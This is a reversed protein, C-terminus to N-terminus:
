KPNNRLLSQRGWIGAQRSSHEDTAPATAPQDPLAAESGIHQTASPTHEPGDYEVGWRVGGKDKDVRVVRYGGVKKDRASRLRYGLIKASPPHAEPSRQFPTDTLECLAELFSERGPDHGWRMVSEVIRSATGRLNRDFEYWAKLVALLKAQDDDDEHVEEQTAVPDPLGAHLLAHRVVRDWELFSGLPSVGPRIPFGAVAHARLITLAAAFLRPRNDLVYRELDKHRFGSRTEPRELDTILRVRVVRRSLDGRLVLNNGTVALVTTNPLKMIQQSHFRRVGFAEATLFRDLVPNRLSGTANDFYAFRDGSILVSALRNELEKEDSTFSIETPVHGNIILGPLRALKTKGTGQRIGDIWLMPVPGRIAQRGVAACLGSLYASRHEETGFPFDHVVDLLLEIADQVQRPTPKAPIPEWRTRDDIFLYGTDTDYGPTAVIEGDPRMFPTTTIGALNPISPWHGCNAFLRALNAPASVQKSVVNRKKGSGVAKKDMFVIHRSMLRQAQEQSVESLVVSGPSRSVPNPGEATESKGACVLRGNQKYVHGSLHREIVQLIRDTEAGLVIVPREAPVGAGAEHRIGWTFYETRGEYAKPITLEPLYDPRDWKDRTLGSRRMIREIREHEDPGCAFALMGALAMDAESPGPYGSDDGLWLAHFGNFGQCVAIVENDTVGSATVNRVDAAPDTQQPSSRRARHRAVAARAPEKNTLRGRLREVQESRDEITAPTGELQHGTVSLFRSKTYIEVRDVKVGKAEPAKIFIRLGTGSLSLETYSDIENVIEMAWSEVKGTQPDVCGDLDLGGIGNGCAFAIADVGTSERSHYCALADAFGTWSTPNTSSAHVTPHLAQYPIKDLLEANGRREAKLNAWQPRSKLAEPIRDPIVPLIQNKTALM